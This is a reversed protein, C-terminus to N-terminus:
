EPSALDPPTADGDPSWRRTLAFAVLWGLGGALVVDSLFHARAMVRTAACGVALTYGVWRARPFLRALMAAGGFAVLTHSSPLALGSTSWTHDAFARFGYAGDHAEPRERRLLLKGVEAVIGGLAASGFLLLGRRRALARRVPATGEHLAVAVALAAWTGLFGMIRLLRGWDREYVKPDHVHQYVWPDLLCAVAFAVATLGLAQWAPTWDSRPRGTADPRTM